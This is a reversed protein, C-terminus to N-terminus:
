IYIDHVRDPLEENLRIIIEEKSHSSKLISDIISLEEDTLVGSKKLYEVKRQLEIENNKIYDPRSTLTDLYLNYVRQRLAIFEEETPNIEGIPYKINTIKSLAKKLEHINNSGAILMLDIDQNNLTIGNYQVQLLHLQKEKM